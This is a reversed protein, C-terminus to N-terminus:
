KAQVWATSLSTIEPEATCLSSCTPDQMLPISNGAQVSPGSTGEPDFIHRHSLLLSIVLMAPCVRLRDLETSVVTVGVCAGQM